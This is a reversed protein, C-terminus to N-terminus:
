MGNPKFPDPLADYLWAQKGYLKNLGEQVEKKVPEHSVDMQALIGPLRVWLVTGLAETCLVARREAAGHQTSEFGEVSDGVVEFSVTVGKNKFFAETTAKQYFTYPQNSIFLLSKVAPNKKLWAVLTALTTQTTPRVKTGEPTQTAPTYLNHVKEPGFRGGLASGEFAAQILHTETVKAWGGEVKQARAIKDLEEPSGDPYIEKLTGDSLKETKCVVYREGGLLVLSETQLEKEMLSEVYAMRGQMTPYTAGFVVVADPKKNQPVIADVLGLTKLCTLVTEHNKTIWTAEQIDWREQGNKRQVFKEQTVAVLTVANKLITESASLHPMVGAMECLTVLAKQEEPKEWGYQLAIGKVVDEKSAHAMQAGFPWLWGMLLSFCLVPLPHVIKKIMQTFWKRLPEEDESGMSLPAGKFTCDGVWAM